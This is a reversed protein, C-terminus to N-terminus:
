YSIAKSAQHKGLYYAIGIGENKDAVTFDHMVKNEIVPYKNNSDKAVKNKKRIISRSDAKQM